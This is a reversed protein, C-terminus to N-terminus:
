GLVGTIVAFLFAIGVVWLLDGVVLRRILTCGYDATWRRAGM